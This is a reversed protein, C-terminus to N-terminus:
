TGWLANWARRLMSPEDTATADEEEEEEAPTADDITAPTADTDALAAEGVAPGPMAGVVQLLADRTEDDVHELVQEIQQPDAQQQMQQFLAWLRAHANSQSTAQEMLAGYYAEDYRTGDAPPLPDFTDLGGPPSRVHPPLYRVLQQHLAAPLDAVLVHRYVGLCTTAEATGLTYTAGVLAPLVAQAISRFWTTHSAEKWLSLSRHVYLHALLEDLAPTSAAYMGQMPFARVVDPPMSVDLKDALLIATRPHRAIALRLAADSAETENQARLALARAYQLGACWDLTGHGTERAMTREHDLPTCARVNDVAMRDQQTALHADLADILSLLWAGQKSKIALFDMWLLMGHPDNVDLSLVLKCWELSTRWTGRRGFLDINRHAALWFARNEARAFTSLPPGHSSTLSTVFTSAASREMAFLARDVFDAAQGLDGQYRSVDSLQLLTDVHWPFVRLLAYLAQTDYSRVAQAFQFQAQKYARSHEWSCIRGQPTDRTTMSLGVFSRGLDPWTPKPTSLVTRARMNSNLHAGRNRGGARTPAQNKEREYAKIAAAGFQRRLEQAPDLQTAELALVSRLTTWPTKAHTSPTQADTSSAPRQTTESALLADMEELSMANVDKTVSAKAKKKKKKSKSQSPISTEPAASPVDDADDPTEDLALPAAEEDKDDDDAPPVADPPVQETNGPASLQQLQALEEQQRQLRRNVRRSM